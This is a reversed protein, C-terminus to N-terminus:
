LYGVWAPGNYGQPHAKFHQITRHWGEILHYQHRGKILVIPEPSIGRQQIMAAQTAHRETDKPVSHPNRIENGGVGRAILQKRTDPHFMKFTIPLDNILEWRKVKYDRKIMQLWDDLQAQDQITKAQQYLLDQVVYEPWTPFQQKLHDLLSNRLETLFDRARM